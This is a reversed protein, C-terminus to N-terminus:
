ATRKYVEGTTVLWRGDALWDGMVLQTTCWCVTNISNRQRLLADFLMRQRGAASGFSCGIGLPHVIPLRIGVGDVRSALSTGQWDRTGACVGLVHACCCCLSSTCVCVGGLAQRGQQALKQGVSGPFLLGAGAVRADQHM